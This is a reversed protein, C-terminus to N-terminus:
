EPLASQLKSGRASSRRVIILSVTLSQLQLAEQQNPLYKYAVNNHCRSPVSATGNDITRLAHFISASSEFWSTMALGTHQVGTECDLKDFFTRHPSKKVLKM